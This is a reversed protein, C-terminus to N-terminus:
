NNEVWEDCYLCVDGGDTAVIWDCDSVECVCTM